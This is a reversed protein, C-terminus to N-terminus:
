DGSNANRLGLTLFVQRMVPVEWRKKPDDSWCTAIMDWVSDRLWRNANRNRPRLPREGSKIRSAVSNYDCIGDYPLIGTLVQYYHPLQM